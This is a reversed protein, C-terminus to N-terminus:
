FEIGKRAKEGEDFPHKISLMETVYDARKVLEPSADRGTLVLELPEPKKEIFDILEQLDLFGTSVAGVVEDMVLMDFGENSRSLVDEFLERVSARVKEVDTDPGTFFPHRVKARILEMDPEFRRLAEKEGSFDDELKFFQVFLVRLGSGLARVALGVAATTKGKGQGTYIHVLGKKRTGKSEEM